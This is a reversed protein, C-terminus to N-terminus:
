ADAGQRAFADLTAAIAEQVAAILQAEQPPTMAITARAGELARYPVEGLAAKLTTLGRTWAERTAAAPVLEAAARAHQLRDKALELEEREIRLDALTKGKARDAVDARATRGKKALVAPEAAADRGVFRGQAKRWTVYAPLDIHYTGGRVTIGRAGDRADNYVTQVSIGIDAAVDAVSKPPTADHPPKSASPRRAV